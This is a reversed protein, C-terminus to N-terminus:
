TVAFGGPYVLNSQPVQLTQVIDITFKGATATTSTHNVFVVYLYRLGLSALHPTLRCTVKSGLALKRAVAYSATAGGLYGFSGITIGATSYPTTGLMVIAGWTQDTTMAETVLLQVDLSEGDGMNRNKLLDVYNASYAFGGIGAPYATTGSSNVPAQAESLRLFHDGIM